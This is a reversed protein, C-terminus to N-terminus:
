VETALFDTAALTSWHSRLFQAWTTRRKPAPEIGHDKLVRKVTNHALVKGLNALAGQIRRYGWTPNDRAMRVILDETEKSLPPRGTKASAYTWKM